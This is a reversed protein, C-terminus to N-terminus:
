YFNYTLSKGQLGTTLLEGELAPTWDRTLSSLDCVGGPWFFLDYFLLLTTVFKIFVGFIISM